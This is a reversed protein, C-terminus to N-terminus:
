KSSFERLWAKRAHYDDRFMYGHETNIKDYGTARVVPTNDPLTPWGEPHVEIITKCEYSRSSGVFQLGEPTQVAYGYMPKQKM